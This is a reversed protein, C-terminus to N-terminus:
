TWYNMIYRFGRSWGWWEWWGAEQWDVVRFVCSFIHGGECYFPDCKNM